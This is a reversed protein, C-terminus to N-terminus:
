CAPAPDLPPIAVADPILKKILPLAVRLAVGLAAEEDPSLTDLLDSLREHQAETQSKQLATEPM